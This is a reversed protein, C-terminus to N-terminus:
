MDSEQKQRKREREEGTKIEEREEKARKGNSQDGAANDGSHQQQYLHMQAHQPRHPSMTLPGDKDYDSIGANNGVGENGSAAFPVGSSAGTATAATATAAAREMPSWVMQSLVNQEPQPLDGMNVLMWFDEVSGNKPLSGNLRSPEVNVSGDFLREQQVSNTTGNKSERLNNSNYYNDGRGSSHDRGAQQGSAGGSSSSPGASFMQKQQQQQQQRMVSMDVIPAKVRVQASLLSLADSVVDGGGGAGAGRGGAGLASGGVTGANMASTTPAPSNSDELSYGLSTGEENGSLGLFKNYKDSSGSNGSPDSPGDLDFPSGGSVQRSLLGASLLDDMSGGGGIGGSLSNLNGFSPWGMSEGFTLTSGGNNDSTGRVLGPFVDATPDRQGSGGNGGSSSSTGAGGGGFAHLMRLQQQNQQYMLQQQKLASADGMNGMNELSNTSSGMQAISNLMELSTARSFSSSNSNGDPGSMSRYGYPAQQQQLLQHNNQGYMQQQQQQKFFYQAASSNGNAGGMGLLQDAAVASLDTVPVQHAPAAWPAPIAGSADGEYGARGDKADSAAAPQLAAATKSRNTSAVRELFKRELEGLERQQVEIQDSSLKELEQQRRRFVQKGICNAGVFKKSIRMPDCNLLKSLFTRLTTGETLPLLGQKFEYILRNAYAEEESTWKGRRLGAKKAKEDTTYLGNASILGDAMAAEM